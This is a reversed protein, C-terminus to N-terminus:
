PSPGTCRGTSRTGGASSELAVFLTEPAASGGPAPTGGGPAPTSAAPSRSSHAATSPGGQTCGQPGFNVRDVSATTGYFGIDIRGDDGAVIWPMVNNTLGTPM